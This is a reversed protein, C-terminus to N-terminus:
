PLTAMCFGPLFHQRHHCLAYGVLLELNGTKLLSIDNDKNDKFNGQLCFTRRYCQWWSSITTDWNTQSFPWHVHQHMQQRWENDTLMNNSSNHILVYTIFSCSITVCVSLVSTLYVARYISVTPIVHIQGGRWIHSKAVQVSPLLIYNQMNMRVIFLFTIPLLATM